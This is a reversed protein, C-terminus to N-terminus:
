YVFRYLIKGCLACLVFLASYPPNETDETSETALKEDEVRSQM